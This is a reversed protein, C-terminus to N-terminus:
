KTTSVVTIPPAQNSALCYEKSKGGDWSVCTFVSYIGPALTEPITYRSRLHVTTNPGYSTPGPFDLTEIRETADYNLISFKAVAPRSLADGGVVVDATITVTEGPHATAPSIAPNMIAVPDTVGMPRDPFQYARVYAIDMDAPFPTTDDVTGTWGGTAGIGLNAIMFMPRNPVSGRTDPGEVWCFDQKGDVYFAMIRPYWAVGYTHWGSGWDGFVQTNATNEPKHETLYVLSNSSHAAGDKPQWSTTGLPWFLNRIFYSPNSEGSKGWPNYIYEAVAIEPPWAGSNPLMWFAPWLGNGNPFKAKIEFYGYTQAFHGRTIIEGSTYAQKWFPTRTAQLRAGVGPVMVVNSPVYAQQENNITQAGGQAVATWKTPDLTASNFEDHFTPIMRSTPPLPPCTEALASAMLMSFVCFAAAVVSKFQSM